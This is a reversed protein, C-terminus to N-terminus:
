REAVVLCLSVLGSAAWSASFASMRPPPVLPAEQVKGESGGGTGFAHLANTGAVATAICGRAGVPSCCNRWLM